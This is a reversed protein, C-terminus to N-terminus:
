RRILCPVEGPRSLSVRGAAASDAAAPWRDPLERHPHEGVRGQGARLGRHLRAGCRQSSYGGRHDGRRRLFPRRTDSAREARRPHSEDRRCRSRAFDDPEACRRRQPRGEKAARLCGALWLRGRFRRPCPRCDSHRVRDHPAGREPSTPERHHRRPKARRLEEWSRSLLGVGDVACRLEIPPPPEVARGYPRQYVNSRNRLLCLSTFWGTVHPWVWWAATARSERATWCGRSVRPGTKGLTATM